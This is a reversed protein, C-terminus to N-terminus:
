DAETITNGDAVWAQIRQYDRNAPDLPVYKHGNMLYGTLNNNADRMNVVTEIM